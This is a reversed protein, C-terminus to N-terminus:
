LSSTSEFRILSIIEHSSKFFTSGPAVDRFVFSGDRRVGSKYRGGDLTVQTQPHLSDIGPCVFNWAISGSVDVARANAIVWLLFVVGLLSSSLRLM